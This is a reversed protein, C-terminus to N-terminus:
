GEGRALTVYRKIQIVGETACNSLITEKTLGNMEYRM